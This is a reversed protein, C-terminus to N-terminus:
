DSLTNLGNIEDVDLIFGRTELQQRVQELNQRLLQPDLM